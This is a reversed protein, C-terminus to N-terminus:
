RTFYSRGSRLAWIIFGRIALTIVFGVIGTTLGGGVATAGEGTGPTVTPTMILGLLGVLIGAVSTIVGLNQAWKKASFIGIGAALDAVAIALAVIVLVLLIAGLGGVAGGLSALFGAGLLGILGGVLGLAGIIILVIAAATVLGPRGETATGYGTGQTGAM